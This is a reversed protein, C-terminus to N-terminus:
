ATGGGQGLQRPARRELQAAEAQDAIIRAAAKGQAPDKPFILLSDGDFATTMNVGRNTLVAEIVSQAQGKLGDTTGRDFDIKVVMQDGQRGWGEKASAGTVMSLARMADPPLTARAVPDLGEFHEDLQAMVGPAAESSVTFQIHNKGKVGTAAVGFKKSVAAAVEEVQDPRGNSFLVIVTGFGPVEQVNKFGTAHDAMELKVLEGGRRSLETGGKPRLGFRERLSM